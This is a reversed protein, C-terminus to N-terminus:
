KSIREPPVINELSKQGLFFHRFLIHVEETIELEQQPFPERLGENSAHRGIAGAEDPVKQEDVFEAVGHGDVDAEGDKM